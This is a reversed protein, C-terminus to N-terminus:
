DARRELWALLLRAGFGTAGEALWPRALGEGIFAPGAIDLHAWPVDGTFHRLFLAATIAGGGPDIDFDDAINRLDAVDSRLFPRLDPDLPLPWLPEGALEGAHRLAQGLEDDDTMLAATYRGLATVASGTLTALDVIADLDDLAVAAALADALVLRGESDTDLLEVTTGDRMTLVDDPRQADAGPLNEALPLFASVATRVGLDGLVSCAGAIAAAGAMDSKMAAMAATSKLSLGGSDFTIGKGVLAVHGIPDVPQYRLEVLCPPNASGRGVGLIGGCGQAALAAADHVTVECTGGTLEGIARALLVPVKQAPPTHVLRRAALTATAYAEARRLALRAGSRRSSPVLVVVERLVPAGHEPSSRFRRDDHAGIAFGEAVAHVVGDTPHTEALTTAVVRHRRAQAGAVAAARRLRDPSVADMRGLGLLLVAGAAVGTGALLLHQGLDGRFGPTVPFAPLGLATRVPTAGPGDIGGKFVPIVLLDCAVQCPDAATATLKLM